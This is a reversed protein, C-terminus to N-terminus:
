RTRLSLGLRAYGPSERGGMPGIDHADACRPLEGVTEPSDHDIAVLPEAVGGM